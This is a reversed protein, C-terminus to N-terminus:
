TLPKIRRMLLRAATTVLSRDYTVAYDFRRQRNPGQDGLDVAVLAGAFHPALVVVSWEDKLADGDALTAGRVGPAPEAELGVGLGAVFALREALAAYRKRTKPTFREATQFVSLLIATEGLGFAQRELLCSMEVLLPMTAQRIPLIQGVAEFPTSSATAARVTQPLRVRGSNGVQTPLPGPRGLRWGQGVTAGFSRATALHEATEIGEALVVAGTREAYANVSTIIEAMEQNPRGQVLKLDLKVVDPGLLEMLALSRSDAGVDDLAVNWGQDRFDELSHLLDAPRSTLARETIEVVLDLEGARSWTDRHREPCPIGLAEPEANIFLRLPSPLGGDLAGRIAAARCAWDLEGLRGAARAAAFLDAPSELPSGAPGRVLAEYAVVRGSALEVLPQYVARLDIGHLVETLQADPSSSEAARTPPPSGVPESPPASAGYFAWGGGGSAKARYMASDAHQMLTPGDVADRPFLSIGVSAGIQIQKGAVLFPRRLAEVMRRAISGALSGAHGDLRDLMVLFEDGGQRALLDGPRLVGALRHGVKQLLDDGALHGLSDNVRKFEDLDVYLLALAHDVGQRPETAAALATQLAYRNALGTLSDHFAMFEVRADAEWRETVDNQIGIYEVLDGEGNRVPSLLLENWFSSGDSRYNRLTVLCEEGAALAASMAVSMAPDTDLGQLFRCNRGLAEASSYGTIREFAPNVYTIPQDASMMDVIVVGTV